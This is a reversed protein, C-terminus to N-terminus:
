LFVSGVCLRACLCAVSLCRAISVLSLRVSIQLSGSLVSFASPSSSGTSSQSQPPQTRLCQRRLSPGLCDPARLPLPIAAAANATAATAVAAARRVLMAAAAERVAAIVEAVEGGTGTVSQRAVITAVTAASRLLRRLALLGRRWRTGTEELVPSEVRGAEAPTAQTCKPMAAAARRAPLIELVM